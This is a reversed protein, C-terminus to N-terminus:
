RSARNGDSIMPQRVAVRHAKVKGATCRYVIRIFYRVYCRVRKSYGRRTQGRAAIHRHVWFYKDLQITRRTRREVRQNRTFANKCLATQKAQQRRGRYRHSNEVPLAM